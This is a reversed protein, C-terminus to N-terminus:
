KNQELRPRIVKSMVAGLENQTDEIKSLVTRITEPTFNAVRADDTLWWKLLGGLRGLNGSIKAMECVQEADVIGTVQYGQGVALLFSSVSKGTTKANAEILAKEEPLCYVKLPTTGRRTVKQEKKQM